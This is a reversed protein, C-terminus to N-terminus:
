FQDFIYERFRNVEATSGFCIGIRQDLDKIPVDLVSCPFVSEEGVIELGERKNKRNQRIQEIDDYESPCACTSGGSSEVIFAIPACEYLLRLKAKAKKSSVNTLVGQSKMLIHYVDPVLGGSYRLTFNNDLYYNILNKYNINDNISRLNGPAYIKTTEKINIKPNTVEWDLTDFRVEICYPSGENTVQGSLALAITIRPGYQAMISCVQDRGTKGLFESGRWIGFISGVAFNCDIISSGDLPDYAVSFVSGGGVNNVPTEESSYNAVLGSAKLSAMILEDALVDVELQEDGFQNTSGIATASYHGSRLNEGVVHIAHFIHALLNPLDKEDSKIHNLIDQPLPDPVPKLSCCRRSM